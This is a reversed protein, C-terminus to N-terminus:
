DKSEYNKGYIESINIAISEDWFIAIKTVSENEKPKEVPIIHLLEILKDNKNSQCLMLCEEKGYAPNDQEPIQHFKTDSFNITKM